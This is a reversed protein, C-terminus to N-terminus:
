EESQEESVEGEELEEGEAVEGEELEEEAEEGELALEESPTLDIEIEKRPKLISVVTQDPASLIKVGELELDSVHISDGIEMDEIELEIIEPIDVPNGKVLITEMLQDKIGGSQVGEPIGLTKVPIKMEITGEKPPAYFDVHIPEDTLSDYQIDRLFVHQDGNQPFDLELRTSRTIKKTLERFQKKDIKLSVSDIEPGYLVAPIMGHRRVSNPNETEDRQEAKIAPM